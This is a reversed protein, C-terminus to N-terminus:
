ICFLITSTDNVKRRAIKAFNSCTLRDKRSDLWEQTGQAASVPQDPISDYYDSMAEELLPLPLDPEITSCNTGYASDQFCLCM